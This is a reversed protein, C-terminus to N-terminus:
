LARGKGKRDQTNQLEELLEDITSYLSLAHQRRADEGDYLAQHAAPDVRQLESVTRYGAEVWRFLGAPAYQTISMRTEHRGVETNSHLMTSSPILITSGPPFEIILGLDWLVLHGGKEPDYDGMSTIACWGPAYNLHDRHPFTVTRPGLNFTLMPFVVNHFPKYLSPDRAM